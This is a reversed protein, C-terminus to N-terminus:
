FPRSRSGAARNDNFRPRGQGYRVGIRSYLIVAVSTPPPSATSGEMKVCANRRHMPVPHSILFSVHVVCCMCYLPLPCHCCLRGRFRYRACPSPLVAVVAVVVVAIVVVVRVLMVGLGLRINSKAEPAAITEFRPLVSQDSM